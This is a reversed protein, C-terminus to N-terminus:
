MFRIIEATYREEFLSVPNMFDHSTARPRHEGDWVPYVGTRHMQRTAHRYKGEFTKEIGARRQEYKAYDVSEHVGGPADGGYSIEGTYASTTRNWNGDVKGSARLSGTDVHVAMQTAFFQAITVGHLGLIHQTDPGDELRRLERLADSADVEFRISM